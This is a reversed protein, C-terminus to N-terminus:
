DIDVTARGDHFKLAMAAGGVILVKHKGIGANLIEHALENLYIDINDRFLYETNAEHSM